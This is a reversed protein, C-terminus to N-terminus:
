VTEASGEAVPTRQRYDHICWAIALVGWLLTFRVGQHTLGYSAIPLLPWVHWGFGRVAAWLFLLSLAFGPFGYGFLLTGFVSHIEKGGFVNFRTHLGEGAGLALYHPELWIRDYGRGEASDDGQTGATALRGFANEFLTNGIPSLTLFVAAIAIASVGVKPRALLCVLAILVVGGMAAKSLSLLSYFTLIGLTAAPRLYSKEVLPACYAVIASALLTYYGLQNPNNFLLTQRPTGSGLSLIAIPLQVVAGIVVAMYTAQIFRKEYASYLVIAIAFYVANYIYFLGSQLFQFASYKFTYFANVVFIYTVLAALAQLMFRANRRLPVRGQQLLRVALIIIFIDAVRPLGSPLLYLPFFIIFLQWLRLNVDGLTWPKAAATATM